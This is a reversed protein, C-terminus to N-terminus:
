IFKFPYISVFHGQPLFDLQTDTEFSNNSNREIALASDAYWECRHSDTQRNSSDYRYIFYM